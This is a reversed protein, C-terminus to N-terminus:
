VTDAVLARDRSGLARHDRFHHKLVVDAPSRGPLVVALAEVIADFQGRTLAGAM